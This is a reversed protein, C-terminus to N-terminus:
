GAARRKKADMVFFAIVGAISLATIWLGATLGHPWYKVVVHHFGPPVDVALLKDDRVAEGASARWGRDFASNVLVHAPATGDVDFTVTNQTRSVNSVISASGAPVKAQPL